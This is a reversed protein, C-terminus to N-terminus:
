QTQVPGTPAVDLDVLYRFSVTLDLGKRQDWQEKTMRFSSVVDGELTQGPAITADMPVPTGRLSALDPYAAFLREYDTRTAAYSTRIGDPLTVNSMIQRLFLPNKSQNHLKLHVFLLVQDFEEKPMVAGSADFGSTERHMMHAVVRSAEGTAAPPKQGALMYVAIAVTVVIAAIVTAWVIHSTGKTLEEGRASDDLDSSTDHQLLSM